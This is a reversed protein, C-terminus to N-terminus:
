ECVCVCMSMHATSVAPLAFFSIGLLACFSAIIKGQWTEPVMDGYGVTCLTIQANRHSAGIHNRHSSPPHAFSLIILSTGILQPMFHDDVDNDAGDRVGSPCMSQAREPSLRHPFIHLCFFHFHKGCGVVPGACLQQVKQECGEGDPLRSVIRIDPRPIRHVAHHNIGAIHTRHPWAPMDFM